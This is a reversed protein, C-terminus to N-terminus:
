ATCRPCSAWAGCPGVAAAALTAVSVAVCGHVGRARTTSACRQTSQVSGTFVIAREAGLAQLLALAALPKDAGACVVKFERLERPLAYRGRTPDCLSRCIAPNCVRAPDTARVSVGLGRGAHPEYTAYGLEACDDLAACQQTQVLCPHRAACVYCCFQRCLVCLAALLERTPAVSRVPPRRLCAGLLAPPAARAARDQGPRAHADGFRGGQGRPRGHARLRNHSPRLMMARRVLAANGAPATRHPGARLLQGLSAAHPLTIWPSCGGALLTPTPNRFGLKVFLM